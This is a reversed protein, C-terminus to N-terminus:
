KKTFLLLKKAAFNWLSVIITTLVKSLVYHSLLIDTFFKMFFLTLGIGFIGIITFILLENWKNKLRREDFIWNISLLYTYTLGVIFGVTAAVLYHVQFVEKLLVMLGTDLIFATGGSFAYRFLQIYLNGTKEKFLINIWGKLNM